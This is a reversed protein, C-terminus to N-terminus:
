LCMCLNKKITYKGVNVDYSGNPIHTEGVKIEYGCHNCIRKNEKTEFKLNRSVVLDGTKYSLSM